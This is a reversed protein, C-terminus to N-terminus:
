IMERLTSNQLDSPKPPESIFFLAFGTIQKSLHDCWRLVGRTVCPPFSLSDSYLSLFFCFICGSEPEIKLKLPQPHQHHHSPSVQSRVPRKWPKEWIGDPACGSDLTPDRGKRVRCAGWVTKGVCGCAPFLLTDTELVSPIRAKLDM